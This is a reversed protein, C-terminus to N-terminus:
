IITATRNSYNLHRSPFGTSARTTTVAERSSRVKRPWKSRHTRPLLVRVTPLMIIATQSRNINQPWSSHSLPDVRTPLPPGMTRRIGVGKSPEGPNRPLRVESTRRDCRVTPQRPARGQLSQWARVRSARQRWSSARNCSKCRSCPQTGKLCM